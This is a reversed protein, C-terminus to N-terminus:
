QQTIDRSIGLVARTIGLVVHSLFLSLISGCAVFSLVNVARGSLVANMLLTFIIITFCLSLMCASYVILNSTAFRYKKVLFYILWTIHFILPLVCTLIWRVADYPIVIISTSTVVVLCVAATSYTRGAGTLRDTKYM